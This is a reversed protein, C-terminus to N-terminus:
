SHECKDEEDRVTEYISSYPPRLRNKQLTYGAEEPLIRMVNLLQQITTSIWIIITSRSTDHISLRKAVVKRSEAM